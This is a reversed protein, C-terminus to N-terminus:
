GGSKLYALRRKYYDEREPDEAIAKKIQELALNRYDTKLAANEMATRYYVEALVDLARPRDADPALKVANEASTRTLLFNWLTDDPSTVRLFAAWFCPEWDQALGTQSTDSDREIALEFDEVAQYLMEPDGELKWLRIRALGSKVLPRHDKPNAKLQEQAQRIIEREDETGAKERSIVLRRFLNRGISSLADSDGAAQGVLDSITALARIGDASTRGLDELISHIKGLRTIEETDGTLRALKELNQLAFRNGPEIKLCANLDARAAELDSGDPSGGAMRAAGRIWLLEANSPQKGLALNAFAFATRWEGVSISYLARVPRRSEKSAGLEKARDLDASAEDLRGQYCRVRARLVHAQPRRRRLGIAEDLIAAIEDLRIPAADEAWSMRDQLLTQADHVLIDYTRLASGSKVVLIIVIAAMVTVVGLGGTLAAVRRRRVYAVARPIRGRPRALIPKRELFRDLDDALVEANAYRRDLDRAMGKLVITELARPIRRDIKRPAAPDAELVNKLFTQVTEGEFPHTKTLIEYLTVALSYVDTRRDVRGKEALIQEPSMYKPTGVIADTSTLTASKELRALGFDSVLIQGDARVLLNSPKVDRHIVGSEHAFHLARAADRILGAAQRVTIEHGKAYVDLPVGEIYDMAYFHTNDEEAIELVRVIGPHELGSAAQAERRFREVTKKALAINAPLVKLAVRSHDDLRLAEYVVGNSGRGLERLIEYQGLRRGALADGGDGVGPHSM